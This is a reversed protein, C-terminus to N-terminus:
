PKNRQKRIPRLGLKDKTATVTREQENEVNVIHITANVDFPVEKAIIDDKLREVTLLNGLLARDSSNLFASGVLANGQFKTAWSPDNDVILNWGMPLSPLSAVRGSSVSIEFGAIRENKELKIGALSLGYLESALSTKGLLVCSIVSAVIIIRLAPSSIM